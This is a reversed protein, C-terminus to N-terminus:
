CDKLTRSQVKLLYGNSHLMIKLKYKNRLVLVKQDANEFSVKMLAQKNRFRAPLRSAALVKPKSAVSESSATILDCAKALLDEDDSSPMNKVIVTIENNDLLNAIGRSRRTATDRENNFVDEGLNVNEEVQCIRHTLSHVSNM